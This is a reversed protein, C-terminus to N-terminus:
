KVEIYQTGGAGGSVWATETKYYIQYWENKRVLKNDKDLVGALVTGNSVSEIRDKTTNPEPRINLTTKTELLNLLKVYGGHMWGENSGSKVKYWTGNTGLVTIKIDKAITTIKNSSTNPEKRLNVSDTTLGVIKSPYSRFSTTGTATGENSTPDAPRATPGPQNLYKPVEFELVFNNLDKYFAAIKNAQIEAWKVHTAYQRTGTNAPNWRMKYLTDQGVNIYKIGVEQAGGIIADAPSFWGKAAAYEAGCEIPCEDKAGYGYMNYVLGVTDATEAIKGYADKTVKGDKDVPIGKSLISTGNGTEHLTHALLYVENLGASSSAKVFAAGQNALIGKGALIKLNIEQASLGASSKLNLFQYFGTSGQSFNSPNAYFEVQEKTANIKGAGDSKPSVLMQKKVLDDFTYSYNRVIIVDKTSVTNALVYGSYTKGDKLISAQFWNKTYSKLKLQSGKDLNLLVGASESPLKYLKTASTTRGNYTKTSNLLLEIHSTYIYGTRRKGNVYVSTEYWQSSFTKFLLKKGAPYSKLVKSNTSAKSYVRTPNVVGIGSLSTQKEVANEVHSKHIYGTRKKGNVYVGAQYWNPSFTKYQLISGAAYTKWASATSGNKYVATPSKLAVGRISQQTEFATELNVKPIYGTRKKGNVYVSAQYWNTSFTRYLLIHGQKYSKLVTSDTSATSFVKTPNGIGIGRLSTPSSVATEVDSTHIYGTKAAGNVYVKTRHWDTNSAEYKLIVGAKYSKLPKSDRSTSEYVYTPSKLAIGSSYSAAKVSSNTFTTFIIAILLASFVFSVLKLPHRLNIQM